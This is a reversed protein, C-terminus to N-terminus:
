GGAAAQTYDGHFVEPFDKVLQARAEAPSLEMAWRYYLGRLAARYRLKQRQTLPPEEAAKAEPPKM